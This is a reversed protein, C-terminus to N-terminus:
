IVLNVEILLLSIIGCKQKNGKFLEFALLGFLGTLLINNFFVGLTSTAGISLLLSNSFGGSLVLIGVILTLVGLAAAFIPLFLKPLKGMLNSIFNKM